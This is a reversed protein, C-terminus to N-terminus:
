LSGPSGRSGPAARRVKSLTGGSALGSRGRPRMSAVGALSRCGSGAELDKYHELFHQIQYLRHPNIDAHTRWHSYIPLVKDDPVALVKADNGKEDM